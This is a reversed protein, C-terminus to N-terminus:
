KWLTSNELRRVFEMAPLIEIGEKTKLKEPGAYVALRKMDKRLEEIAKLGKLDEGRIRSGSKVEIALYRGQSKLLFDVETKQAVAPSWYYWEDFLRSFDRYSRLLGAVWGEFLSGREEQTLPGLQKKLARVLGADVWYWKPHRKERVRLRGEFAPLRFALLTDELIEM